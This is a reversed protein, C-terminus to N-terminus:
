AAVGADAGRKATGAKKPARRAKAAKKKPKAGSVPEVKPLDIAQRLSKVVIDGIKVDEKRRLKARLAVSVSMSVLGPNRGEAEVNLGNDRILKAYNGGNANFLLMAKHVADGNGASYIIRGDAGRVRFHKYDHEERNIVSKNASKAM